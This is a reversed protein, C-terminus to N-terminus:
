FSAGGKGGGPGFLPPVPSGGGGGVGFGIDDRLFRAPISGVAEKINLKKMVAM